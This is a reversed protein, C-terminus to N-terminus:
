SMPEPPPPPEEPLPLRAASRFGPSTVFQSSL